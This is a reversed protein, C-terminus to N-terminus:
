ETSGEPAPAKEADAKYLAMAKIVALTARCDAVASHEEGGFAAATTLGFHAVAERLKKWRYNGHYDNWEGNFQAFMEMVCDAGTPTILAQHHKVCVQDLMRRDYPLNYAVIRKGELAARIRDYVESFCPSDEVM